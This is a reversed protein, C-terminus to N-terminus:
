KSFPEKDELTLRPLLATLLLTLILITKHRSKEFISKSPKPLEITTTTKDFFDSRSLVRGMPDIAGSVGTNAVRIVPISEEAARFIAHTFHQQPGASDGYWADNSVNIIVDPRPQNQAIVAGPFIIEYCVLPSYTIGEATRQTQLGDGKKLGTFGAVPSLPIYKQFPIYEGFPVLHSKDYQQLIRGNQDILVISNAFDDNNEDYILTGTILYASNKYDRLITQLDAMASRDNLFWRNLATESWIIYTTGTEHGYPASQTLQNYYNEVIKSRDWKEHQPINPQVIRVSIDDHYQTPNKQLRLSGFAYASVFSLIVILAAITKHKKGVASAYLYGPLTAWLITLFTLLYVTGISTVQVIPLVDVWAYGFLNWPFGTFLHGRLWEIITFTAAFAFLSPMAFRRACYGVLATYFSLIIPLGMVALPWAWKYDNGEVLLANGIWSLGFLFYGFGFCWGILTAQANSDTKSILVYLGSLGIFLVPWLNFPAMALVCLAGLSFSILLPVAKALM